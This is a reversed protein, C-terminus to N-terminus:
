TQLHKRAYIKASTEIETTTLFLSCCFCLNNSATVRSATVGTGLKPKMRGALFFLTFPAATYTRAMYM